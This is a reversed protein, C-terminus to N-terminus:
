TAKVPKNEFNLYDRYKMRVGLFNRCALATSFVSIDKM